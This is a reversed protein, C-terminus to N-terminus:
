QEEEACRGRKGGCFDVGDIDTFRTKGERGLGELYGCAVGYDEVEVGAVVDDGAGKVLGARGGVAIIPKVRAREICRIIPLLLKHDIHRAVIWHVIIATHLLM